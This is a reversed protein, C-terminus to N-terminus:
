QLPRYWSESREPPPQRWGPRPSQWRQRLRPQKCQSFLAGSLNLLHLWEYFPTCSSLAFSLQCAWLAQSTRGCAGHLRAVATLRSKALRLPTERYASVAKHFGPRIRVIGRSGSPPAPLGYPSVSPTHNTSHYCSLTVLPVGKAAERCSVSTHNGGAIMVIKIRQASCWGWLPCRPGTRIRRPADWNTNQTGGSVGGGRKRAAGGREPSALVGTGEGWGRGRAPASFM